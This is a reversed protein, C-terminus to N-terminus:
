TSKRKHLEVMLCRINEEMYPFICLISMFILYGRLYGQGGHPNQVRELEFGGAWNFNILDMFVPWNIVLITLLMYLPLSAMYSHAHMEWISIHRKKSAYHVDWHAVLEHLIWVLFCILLLLINIKFVLCLVIPIGVQIGMVSHMLSEKLGSTTEINTARHCLWDIFGSIGWLPLLVFLMFNILLVSTDM